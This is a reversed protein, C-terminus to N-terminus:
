WKPPSSVSLFYKGDEEVVVKLMLNRRLCLYRYIGPFLSVSGPDVIDTVVISSSRSYLSVWVGKMVGELPVSYRRYQKIESEGLKGEAIAKVIEVRDVSGLDHVKERLNKVSLTAVAEPYDKALSILTDAFFGDEPTLFVERGDGEWFGGFPELSGLPYFVFVSLAGPRVKRRVRWVGSELYETHCEKGDFWSLRYWMEKGTEEEWPTDSYLSVSVEMPISLSCSALLLLSFLLALLMKKM